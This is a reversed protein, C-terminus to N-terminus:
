DYFASRQERFRVEPFARYLGAISEYDAAKIVFARPVPRGDDFVISSALLEGEAVVLALWQAM